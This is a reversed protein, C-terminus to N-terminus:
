ARRKAKRTKKNKSRRTKGGRHFVNNMAAHAANLAEDPRKGAKRAADYASAARKSRDNHGPFKLQGPTTM